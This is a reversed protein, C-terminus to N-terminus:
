LRSGTFSFNAMCGQQGQNFSKTGSGNASTSFLLVSQFSEVYNTTSVTWDLSFSAVCAAGNCTIMAGLISQSALPAISCSSVNANCIIAISETESTAAHGCNDASLALTLKWNGSPDLQMADPTPDSTGCSALVAILVLAKM